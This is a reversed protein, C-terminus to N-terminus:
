KGECTCQCICTDACTSVTGKLAKCLVRLSVVWFSVAHYLWGRGSSAFGKFDRSGLDLFRFVLSLM